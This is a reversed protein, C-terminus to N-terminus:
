YECKIYHCLLLNSCCTPRIYNTYKININYTYLIYVIYFNLSLNSAIWFNVSKKDKNKDTYYFLVAVDLHGTNSYSLCDLLPWPWLTLELLAKHGYTTNLKLLCFWSKLHQLNNLNSIIYCENLQFVFVWIYRSLSLGLHAHFPM